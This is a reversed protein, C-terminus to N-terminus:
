QDGAAEVARVLALYRTTWRRVFPETADGPDDEPVITQESDLERPPGHRPEIWIDGSLEVGSKEPDAHVSITLLRWTRADTPERSEYGQILISGWSHDDDPNVKPPYENLVYKGNDLREVEEYAERMVRRATQWVYIATQIV